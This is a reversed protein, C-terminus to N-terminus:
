DHGPAVRLAVGVLTPVIRPRLLDPDYPALRRANTRLAVQTESLSTRGARRKDAKELQAPFPARHSDHHLTM